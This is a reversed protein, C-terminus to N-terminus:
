YLDLDKAFLTEINRFAKFELYNNSPDRVFLTAQEGKRGEFRLYPEIVFEVKHDRLREVMKDFQQWELIVGFHSAPVAHNDVPNTVPAPHDQPAVLHAVLQHGFFDFDIWRESERGTPCGLIRGYFDRAQDLDVVPFALHFRSRSM